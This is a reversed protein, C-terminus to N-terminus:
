KSLRIVKFYNTAIRVPAAITLSTDRRERMQTSSTGMYM